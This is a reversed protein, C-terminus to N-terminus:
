FQRYVMITAVNSTDAECAVAAIPYLNFTASGAEDVAVTRVSLRGATSGIQLISGAVTAADVNAECPGAVCVEIKKGVTLAGDVDLSKTVVGVFATDTATGSDAKVVVLAKDADSVQSLDLSVADGIALTEGAIFTQLTRRDSATIGGGAAANNLSNLAPASM